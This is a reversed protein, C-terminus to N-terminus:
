TPWVHQEVSTALVQDTINTYRSNSLGKIKALEESQVRRIGLEPILIWSRGGAGAIPGNWHYVPQNYLTGVHNTHLLHSSPTM